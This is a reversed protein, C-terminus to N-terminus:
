GRRAVVREWVSVSRSEPDAIRAKNERQVRDIPLRRHTRAGDRKSASQEADRSEFGCCKRRTPFRRATTANRCRADLGSPSRIRSAHSEMKPEIRRLFAKSQSAGLVTSCSTKRGQWLRLRRIRLREVTIRRFGNTSVLPNREGHEAFAIWLLKKEHFHQNVVNASRKCHTCESVRVRSRGM